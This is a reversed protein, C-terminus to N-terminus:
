KRVPFVSISCFVDSKVYKENTTGCEPPMDHLSFLRPCFYSTLLPTPASGFRMWHAFRLDPVADRGERFGVSKLLGLCYLSLSPSRGPQALALSSLIQGCSTQLFQRAEVLNKKQAQM